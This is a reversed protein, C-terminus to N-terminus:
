NGEGPARQDRRWRICLAVMADAVSAWAQLAALDPTVPMVIRTEGQWIDMPATPHTANWRAMQATTARVSWALAAHWGTQHTVTFEASGASLRAYIVGDVVEVGLFGAQNLLRAMHPNGSDDPPGLGDTGTM